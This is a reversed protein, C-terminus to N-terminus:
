FANLPIRLYAVGDDSVDAARGALANFQVAPLMLQPLSLTRDRSERRQVFTDASIGAGVHINLARQEAVTCRHQPGRGPPPYDHCLYIATDDPLALLRQISAYLTRACGGPFDCRATGLDPAFLTDGVFVAAPGGDPSEVLYAIDAPTHGPVHLVRANLRGIEFQEGDAFLREFTPLARRRWGFAPTFAQVVDHVGAGAATTGGFEAQLAQAGSLHDAHVHTELIWVLRSHGTRLAQQVPALSQTGTRGSAPDYDLVPDIVACHGHGDDVLYTFTGSGAHYWPTIQMHM